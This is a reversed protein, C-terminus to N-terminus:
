EDDECDDFLVEEEVYEGLRKTGYDSALYGGWILSILTVFAAADMLLFQFTGVGTMTMIYSLTPPIVFICTIVISLVWLTRYRRSHYKNFPDLIIKKNPM